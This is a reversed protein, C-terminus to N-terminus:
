ATLLGADRLLGTPLAQGSGCMPVVRAEPFDRHLEHLFDLGGQGPVCLDWLVLDAPQRRYLRLGTAGDAAEDVAYREAELTTRLFARVHRDADIVLIATM